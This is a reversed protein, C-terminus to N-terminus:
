RYRSAEVLGPGRRKELAIGLDGCGLAVTEPKRSGFRNLRREGRRVMAPERERQATKCLSCEVNEVPSRARPNSAWCPAPVPEGM